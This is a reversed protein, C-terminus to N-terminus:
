PSNMMGNSSILPRESAYRLGFSPFPSAPSSPNSGSLNTNRQCEDRLANLNRVLSVDLVLPSNRKLRMTRTNFDSQRHQGWIAGLQRPCYAAPNARQDKKSSKSLSRLCQSNNEFPRRRPQILMVM